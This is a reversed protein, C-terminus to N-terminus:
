EVSDFWILSAMQRPASCIWGGPLWDSLNKKLINQRDSISNTPIRTHANTGLHGCKYEIQQWPTNIHTKKGKETFTDACRLLTECTCVCVTRAPARTHPRIHAHDHALILEGPALPTHITDPVLYVCLPILPHWGTQSYARELCSHTRSCREKHPGNQTVSKSHSFM